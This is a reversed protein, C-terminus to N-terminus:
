VFLALKEPLPMNEIRSLAELRPDPITKSAKAPINPMPPAALGSVLRAQEEIAGCVADEFGRERMNWAIDQLRESIGAVDPHAQSIPRPLAIQQPPAELAFQGGHGIARELRTFADLLQTTEAARRRRDHEILFWRGRATEMVAAEIADYDAETLGAPPKNSM